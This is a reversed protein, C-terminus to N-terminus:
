QSVTCSVPYMSMACVGVLVFVVAHVYDLLRNFWFLFLMFTFNLGNRFNAWYLWRGIFALSVFMLLGEGLVGPGVYVFLLVVFGHAWPTDGQFHLSFWTLSLPLCSAGMSLATAFVIIGSCCKM